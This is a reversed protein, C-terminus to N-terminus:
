ASVLYNRMMGSDEHELNHCHYLYLGTYDQFKMLLKVREGPMIMVTDKWGEDVYGARVTEWDATQSPQIQRDIVQFQLGHIHIPHIMSMGGMMGGTQNILEWVELDNLRVRENEAVAEMEFTRGNLLWRMMGGAMGISTAFARPSNRNVADEIRHRNIISLTAPLVFPAQSEGRWAVQVDMVKFPAGNPLTQGGTMGVGAGSFPLSRLERREGAQRESFDELLEIREGPALMVYNRQVARELLGGDTAIVTLPSGDSWALKYVRSNSGNLLRLRYARRAVTLSFDPQGNVLIRDGLFGTLNGMPGPTQYVFQNSADIIRDQIVLPIDYSGSPLRLVSEEDDSVILVGALGNYVQPGTRRDPHPHFWYTGARDNVEFEYVYTQGTGIAYRPHADMEPPVHLGHWHVITPEPLLNTFNIRVRQGRRLRIIPGLYTHPQQSLRVPRVGSSSRIPYRRDLISLPQLSVPDGRLVEGHYTWVRTPAGDFLSAETATARLALEVDSFFSGGMQYAMAGANVTRAAATPTDSLLAAAGLCSCRLFARRDINSSTNM